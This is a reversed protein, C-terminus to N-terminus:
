KCLKKQLDIKIKKTEVTSYFCCNKEIKWVTFEYNKGYCDITDNLIEGFGLETEKSNLIIGSKTQFETEILDSKKNSSTFLIGNKPVNLEYNWNKPIKQSYPFGYVTIVYESEFNDPLIYTKTRNNFFYLFFLFGIILFELMLLNPYKKIINQIFLDVVLTLAIIPLLYIGLIYGFGWTGPKVILCISLIVLVTCILNFPTVKYKM